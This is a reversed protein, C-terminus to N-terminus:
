LKPRNRQLCHTKRNIRTTYAVVHAGQRKAPVSAVLQEHDDGCCVQAALSRAPSASTLTKPPASAWSSASTSGSTSSPQSNLPFTCASFRRLLRACQQTFPWAVCALDPCHPGASICCLPFTLHSHSAASIRCLPLTFCERQVHDQLGPGTLQRFLCFGEATGVVTLGLVLGM